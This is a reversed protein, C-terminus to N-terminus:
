CIPPPGSKFLYNIIYVVDSITVEGDGNTDVCFTYPEPPCQPPIDSKLLYNLLYVVYVM